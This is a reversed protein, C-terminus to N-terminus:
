KQNESLSHVMDDLDEFIMENGVVDLLGARKFVAMVDRHVQAVGPVLGREKLTQFVDKLVGAM